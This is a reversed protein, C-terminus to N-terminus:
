RIIKKGLWIAKLMREKGDLDKRLRIEGYGIASLMDITAKGYQENIEFYLTGNNNLLETGLHAIRKYFILPDNDTVFLSLHPEYDLVNKKMLDKEKRLVYPPNSVIFDLKKPLTDSSSHLIDDLIFDIKCKHHDANQKALTLAAESVDVAYATVDKLECYISIPICGSGTGIDIFRLPKHARHDKIIWDVLEETEPRPILVNPDVDFQRGYFETIGLIYQIPEEKELRSILEEFHTLEIPNLDQKQRLIYDTKRMGCLAELAYFFLSKLEEPDYVTKLREEFKLRIAVVSDESQEM